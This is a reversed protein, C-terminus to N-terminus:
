AAPDCFQVEEDNRPALRRLLGNERKTARHIAESAIVIVQKFDRIHFVREATMLKLFIISYELVARV